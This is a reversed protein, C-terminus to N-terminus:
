RTMEPISGARAAARATLVPVAAGTAVLAGGLVFWGPDPHALALGLLAPSLCSLVAYGSAFAGQYDGMQEERALAYSLVIASSSQLVEAATLLVGAAVVVTVAVPASARGVWPLATCAAAMLTAAALAAHSAARPSAIRKSAAIQIAGVGCTNILLAISCSWGPAHASEAVLLPFAWTLIDNYLMLLGGVSATIALFPVDTLASRGRAPRASTNRAAGHNLGLPITMAGAAGTLVACAVLAARFAWATHVELVAGAAAAGAGYSLNAAARAVAAWHSRKAIGGIQGIVAARSAVTAPVVATSAILTLYLLAPSTAAFVGIRALSQLLLLGAYVAAPGVRDGLRGAIPALSVAIVGAGTLSAAVASLPLHEITTLYVATLTVGLGSGLYALATGAVLIWFSAANVNRATTKAHLPAYSVTM